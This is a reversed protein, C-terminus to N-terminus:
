VNYLVKIKDINEFFIDILEPDFHKGKQENFFELIKDQEWADKYVRKFSLADFVDAIATIRGYIHINDGKLGNPYGSGDYKEHHQSVVIEAIQLIERKSNKLIDQGIPVHSKIIEFEKNDLKGPKLLINDPIGIKGIDHMPSALKLKYAEDEDLGYGMALIYSVEAVRNVHDATDSCRNEIVGGLRQVIEKQTEIIEDNLCINEFAISINNAFINLFDKDSQDLHKCGELYLFINKNNKAKFFAVYYDDEFYSSEMEYAKNLHELSKPTIINFNDEDKFKGATALLKFEGEQLTAFFLM